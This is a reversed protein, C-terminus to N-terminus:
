MIIGIIIGLQQLPITEGLVVIGMIYAMLPIMQYMPLINEIQETELAKFYPIAAVGYAIWGLLLYGTTNRQITFLDQYVFPLLGIAVLGAVCGGVIM